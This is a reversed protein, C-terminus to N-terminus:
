KMLDKILNITKDHNFVWALKGILEARTKCKSMKGDFWLKCPYTNAQHIELIEVTKTKNSLFFIVTNEQPNGDSSACANGYNPSNNFLCSQEFSIQYPLNGSQNSVNPWLNM